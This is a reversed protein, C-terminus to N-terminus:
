GDIFTTRRMFTFRAVNDTILVAQSDYCVVWIQYTHSSSTAASNDYKIKRNVKVRHKWIFKKDENGDQATQFARSDFTRDYVVSVIGPNEIDVPAMISNGCQPHSYPNSIVTAGTKTKLITIRYCLNPRTQFNTIMLGYDIYKAYISDGIRNRVAQIEEDLIGQAVYLADTDHALPVNHYYGLAPIPENSYDSIKYELTKSLERRVVQKIQAVAAQQRAKTKAYRTRRAKYPKKYKDKM